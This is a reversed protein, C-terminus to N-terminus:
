VWAALVPKSVSRKERDAAIVRVVSKAIDSSSAIATQVNMVLIADNGFDALLVKLAAAYRAADADGGIDVPNDGSWTPPLASDLQAQVSPSI